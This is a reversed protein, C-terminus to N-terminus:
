GRRSRSEDDMKIHPDNYVERCMQGLAELVGSIGFERVIMKAAVDRATTSIVAM